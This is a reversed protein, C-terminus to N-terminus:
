TFHLVKEVHASAIKLMQRFTFAAAKCPPGRTTSNRLGVAKAMSETHLYSGHLPKENHRGQANQRSSRGAAEVTELPRGLGARANRGGRGGWAVRRGIRARRAPIRRHGAQGHLGACSRHLDHRTRFGVRRGLKQRVRVEQGHTALILTWRSRWTPTHWARDSATPLEARKGQRTQLWPM